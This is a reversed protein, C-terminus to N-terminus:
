LREGRPLASRFEFLVMRDGDDNRDSGVRSRPDFRRHPSPVATRDPDSGVRSVMRCGEVRALSLMAYIPFGVNMDNIVDRYQKAAAIVMNGFRIDPLLSGHADGDLVRVGEIAGNRFLQVYGSAASADGTSSMLGDLNPAPQRYQGDSDPPLPFHKGKAVQPVLDLLTRNAIAPLSIMHIVVAAGLNGLERDDLALEGLMDAEHEHM